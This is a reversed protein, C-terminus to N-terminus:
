PEGEEKYDEICFIFGPEGFIQESMQVWYDSVFDMEADDTVETLKFIMSVNDSPDGDPEVFVAYNGTPTSVIHSFVVETKGKFTEEVVMSRVMRRMQSPKLM